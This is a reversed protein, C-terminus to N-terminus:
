LVLGGGCLFLYKTTCRNYQEADNSYYFLLATHWIETENYTLYALTPQNPYIMVM